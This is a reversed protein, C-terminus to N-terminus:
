LEEWNFYDGIANALASCSILWRRIDTGGSTLVHSNKEIFNMFWEEKQIMEWLQGFNIWAKNTDTTYFDSSNPYGCKPCSFSKIVFHNCGIINRIIWRSKWKEGMKCDCPKVKNPIGAELFIFGWDNCQFCGVEKEVNTM